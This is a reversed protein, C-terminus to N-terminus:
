TKSKTPRGAKGRNEAAYREVEAMDFVPFDRHRRPHRVTGAPILSGRKNALSVAGQTLGLYTAVEETTLYPM